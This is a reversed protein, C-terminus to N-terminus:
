VSFSRSVFNESPLGTVAASAAKVRSRARSLGPDSIASL